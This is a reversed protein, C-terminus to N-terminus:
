MWFSRNSCFLFDMLQVKLMPALSLRRLGLKLLPADLTSNHEPSVRDNVDWFYDILELDLYDHIDFLVKYYDVGVKIM